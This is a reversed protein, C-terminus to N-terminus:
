ASSGWGLAAPRSYAANKIKLWDRSRGSQYPSDLRKAIMGELDLLSAQEFVWEGNAVIGKPCVLVRTDDFSDRLARKREGLPLKRLDSQGAALLDFIYLRAPNERAAAQVNRQIRMRACGQLREFSPRGNEEYVTLEADWIFSGPVAAVADAVDPFSHNLPNGNRSILEVAAGSKRILVRYGDYKIEFIWGARSFPTRTLTALMLDAADIPPLM